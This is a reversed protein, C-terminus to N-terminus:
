PFMCPLSAYSSLWLIIFVFYLSRLSAHPFMHAILTEVDTHSLLAPPGPTTSYIHCSYLIFISTLLLLFLPIYAILVHVGYQIMSCVYLIRSILTYMQILSCCVCAICIFAYEFIRSFIYVTSYTGDCVPAISYARVTSTHLLIYMISRLFSIRLLIHAILVHVDTYSLM